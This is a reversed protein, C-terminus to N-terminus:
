KMEGSKVLVADGFIVVENTRLVFRMLITANINLPLQLSIGDENVYMTEGSKQFASEIYGGVAEQLRKLQEDGPLGRISLTSETGDAHLVLAM